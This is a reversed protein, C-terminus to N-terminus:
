PSSRYHLQGLPRTFATVVREAGDQHAFVPPDQDLTLVGLVGLSVHGPM